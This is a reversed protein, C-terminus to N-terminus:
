NTINKAKTKLTCTQDFFLNLKCLLAHFIPFFSGDSVENHVLQNELYEMGFDLVEDLHINGNQLNKAM